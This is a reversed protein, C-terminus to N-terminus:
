PVQILLWGVVLGTRSILKPFIPGCGPLDWSTKRGKTIITKRKKAMTNEDEKMEIGKFFKFQIFSTVLKFNM